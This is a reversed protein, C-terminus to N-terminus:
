EFTAYKKHGEEQTKLLDDVGYFAAATEGVLQLSESLPSPSIGIINKNGLLVIQKRRELYM